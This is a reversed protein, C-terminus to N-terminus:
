DSYAEALGGLPEKYPNPESVTTKPASRPGRASRLLDHHSRASMRVAPWTGTKPDCPEKQSLVILGRTKKRQERDDASKTEGRAKPVTRGGETSKGQQGQKRLVTVTYFVALQGRSGTSIVRAGVNM